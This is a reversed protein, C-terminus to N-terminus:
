DPTGFVAPPVREGERSPYAVESAMEQLPDGDL